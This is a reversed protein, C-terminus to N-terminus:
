LAMRGSHLKGGTPLANAYLGVSYGFSSLWFNIRDHGPAMVNQHLDLRQQDGVNNKDM